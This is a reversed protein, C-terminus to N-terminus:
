GPAGAWAWNRGYLVYSDGAGLNDFSNDCCRDVWNQYRSIEWGEAGNDSMFLIFTNDLEGISDLYDVFEGIYSDLDSVMAAFIEM